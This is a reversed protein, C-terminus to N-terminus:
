LWPQHPCRPRRCRRVRLPPRVASGATVCEGKEHRMQVQACKCKHVSAHHTAAPLYRFCTCTCVRSLRQAINPKPVVHCLVDPCPVSQLLRDTLDNRFMPPLAPLECATHSSITDNMLKSRQLPRM